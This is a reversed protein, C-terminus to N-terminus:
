RPFLRGRIEAVRASGDRASDHLIVSAWEYRPDSDFEPGLEFTFKVFEGADRENKLGYSIARDVAEHIRGELEKDSEDWCEEPYTDRAWDCLAAEFNNRTRSSFADMQTSRINM